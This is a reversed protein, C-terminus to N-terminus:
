FADDLAATQRVTDGRIAASALKPHARLAKAYASHFNMEPAAKMSDRALSELRAHAETADLGAADADNSKSAIGSPATLVDRGQKAIARFSALVAELRKGHEEGARWATKLCEAVDDISQGVSLRRAKEAFMAAEKEARLTQLEAEIAKNQKEVDALRAATAEGARKATEADLAAAKAAETRAEVMADIAARQEPTLADLAKAADQLAPANNADAAPPSAAPKQETMTPNEKTSFRARLAARSVDDTLDSKQIAELADICSAIAQPAAKMAETSGALAADIEDKFEQATKALLSALEDVPALDLITYVSQSFAAKARYLAEDLARANMIQSTTRLTVDM